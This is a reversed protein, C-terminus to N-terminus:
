SIATPPDGRLKRLDFIQDLLGLIAFGIATVGFIILLAWSASVMWRMKPQSGARFHVVALGQLMYSLMLALLLTEGALGPYGGLFVLLLSLALAGLAPSPLAIRRFDPWPRPLRQSIRAVRAGLYGSIVSMLFFPLALMAPMVRAYFRGLPALDTGDPLRLGNKDDIQQQARITEEFATYLFSRLTEYNPSIWLATAVILASVYAAIGLMVTGTSLYGSADRLAPFRRGRRFGAESILWAPIGAVLGYALAFTSMQFIDLFLCGILGGLLAVLPHYSLGAIVLPLPAILFMLAGFVSQPQLVAILLSSALGAGLSAVLAQQFSRQPTDTMHDLQGPFGTLIPRM